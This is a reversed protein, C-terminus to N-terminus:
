WNPWICSALTLVLTASDSTFYGVGVEHEVKVFNSVGVRSESREL